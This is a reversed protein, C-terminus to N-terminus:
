RRRPPKVTPTPTPLARMRVRVTVIQSERVRVGPAQAALTTPVAFSGERGEISVPETRVGDTKALTSAPGVIRASRPEATVDELIWGAAPRGTLDALVPV